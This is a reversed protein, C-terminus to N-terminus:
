LVVVKGDDGVKEGAGLHRIQNAYYSGKWSGPFVVELKGGTVPGRMTGVKRVTILTADVVVVPDGCQYTPTGDHNLNTPPYYRCAQAELTETLYATLDEPRLITGVPFSGTNPRTKLVVVGEPDVLLAKTAAHTSEAPIAFDRLSVEGLERDASAGNLDKRTLIIVTPM